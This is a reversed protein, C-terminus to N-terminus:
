ASGDFAGRSWATPSVLAVVGPPPPPSPAPTPVPGGDAVGATPPRPDPVARTPSPVLRGDTLTTPGIEPRAM